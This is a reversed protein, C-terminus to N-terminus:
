ITHLSVQRLVFCQVFSSQLYSRNGIGLTSMCLTDMHLVLTHHFFLISYLTLVIFICFILRLRVVEDFSRYM